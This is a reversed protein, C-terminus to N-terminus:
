LAKRRPFTKVGADTLIKEVSDKKSEEFQVLVAPNEAFLIKVLDTEGNQLFGATTFELGGTTNAFLMELMATVLGGASVDHM